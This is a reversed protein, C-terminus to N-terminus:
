SLLVGRPIADVAAGSKSYLRGVIRAAIVSCLVLFCGLLPQHQLINLLISPTPLQPSLFHTQSSHLFTSTDLTTISSDELVQTREATLCTIVTGKEWIEM